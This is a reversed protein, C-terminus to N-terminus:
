PFFLTPILIFFLITLTNTFSELFPEWVGGVEGGGCHNIRKLSLLAMSGQSLDLDQPYFAAGHNAFKLRTSLHNMNLSGSSRYDVSQIALDYLTRSPVSAGLFSALFNLSSSVTKPSSEMLLPLHLSWMVATCTFVPVRRRMGPIHVDWHALGDGRCSIPLLTLLWLGSVKLWRTHLWLVVFWQFNFKVHSFLCLFSFGLKISNVCFQTFQLPSRSISILNNCFILSESKHGLYKM